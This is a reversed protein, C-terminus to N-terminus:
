CICYYVKTFIKSFNIRFNGSGNIPLYFVQGDISYQGVTRMKPFKLKAKYLRGHEIVRYNFNIYIESLEM